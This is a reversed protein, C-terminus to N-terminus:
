SSGNSKAVSVVGNVTGVVGVVKVAAIKSSRIRKGFGGAGCPNTASIQGNVTGFVGVVKVAAINSSRTRNGL